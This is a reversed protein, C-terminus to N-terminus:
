IVLVLWVVLLVCSPLPIVILCSHTDDKSRQWCLVPHPSSAEENGEIDECFDICSVFSLVSGDM